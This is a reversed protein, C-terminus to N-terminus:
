SQKVNFSGGMIVKVEHSQNDSFIPLLNTTTKSGDVYISKIGKCVHDPNEVSINYTSGRFIRRVYFKEWNKPVCPDIILGNYDPRIGLIYQTAAVYAWSATGTLWSNKGEGFNLHDPGTIFQCYAYPETKRIEAIHNSSLPMLTKFYKYARDGNGLITEAIVAWTNPHCFISANEKLGAPFTTIAGLNTDFKTYPPTFLMLGYKTWLHQYVMDMAMKAREKNAVGSIVAWINSNLYIKGEKNQYSGVKKGNGTYARLYWKGDWAVNNITQYIKKMWFTYKSKLKKKNFLECIRCFECLAKYLLETTWVSEGGEKLNLCDNWDARLSLSLGHTGLKSLAYDIVKKMHEFITGKDGDYYSTIESLISTDGTEKLYEAVSLIFWLHDDSYNNSGSSEGTFPQFTHCANGEQYIAKSLDLIRKKVKQPISHIVSLCDQNSDRYGLGDRQTGTEYYSASRSWNFTTHCQYPCLINVLSDFTKDPTQCQLVSLNKNWYKKINELETKINNINSYKKKLKKGVKQADGIGIVYAIINNKNPLLKLKTHFSACPNGGVAISNFSKKNIVAQPNSESNYQGIFVDRNCDFGRIPATAFAFAKKLSGDAFQCTYDIIDSTQLKKAKCINLTYQLDTLDLIAHWFAFEAYSFIDISKKNKTTNQVELLWIELEKDIPVFYTVRAFIGNYSSSITTYGLGHRCESKYKILNKCVPQWSVSWFEKGDHIYIYRGPRDYPINNYRYRLLRGSKPSLHFSYGGSNNSIIACYKDTGLYNLWPTPTQPNTIVYEKNKEDFFGYRM